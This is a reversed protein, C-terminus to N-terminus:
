AAGTRQAFERLGPLAVPGYLLGATMARLAPRQAEEPAAQEVLRLAAFTQRHDGLQQWMRATDTGLRARREATPLAAPAIRSAYRVAEDPTGLANHVGIWYLDAQAPTADM